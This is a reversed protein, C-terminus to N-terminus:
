AIRTTMEYRHRMADNLDDYFSSDHRIVSGHYHTVGYPDKKIIQQIHSRCRWCTVVAEYLGELHEALNTLAEDSVVDNEGGENDTMTQGYIELPWPSHMPENLSTNKISQVKVFKMPYTDDVVPSDNVFSVRSLRAHVPKVWNNCGRIAILKGFFTEELLRRLPVERDRLYAYYGTYHEDLIDKTSM